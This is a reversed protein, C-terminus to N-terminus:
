PELWAVDHKLYSYHEKKMLHCFSKKFTCFPWEIQKLGKSSLPVCSLCLFIVSKM